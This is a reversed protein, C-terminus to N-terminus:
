IKRWRKASAARLKARTEESPKKGMAAISMAIKQEKSKPRRGLESAWAKRKPSRAAIVMKAITETSKKSGANSKATPSVNYEPRLTDIFHQELMLAIKSDDTYQIVTFSFAKEGHKNWSNQLYPSHHKGNRLLSRHVNWRKRLDVTSGVYSKNTITNTICYLGGKYPLSESKFILKYM